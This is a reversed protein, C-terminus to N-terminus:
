GTLGTIGLGFSEVARQRITEAARCSHEVSQAGLGDRQVWRASHQGFQDFFEFELGVCTDFRPAFQSGCQPLPGSETPIALSDSM